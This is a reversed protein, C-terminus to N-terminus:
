VRPILSLRWLRRMDRVGGLSVEEYTPDPTKGGMFGVRTGIVGAMDRLCYEVGWFCGAAFYAKQEDDTEKAKFNLAISNVCHRVDKPTMSEGYFVHGLHAGCNACRIETRTGDSDPIRRIAGLIEDDFSPWGCGPDFKDESRFLPAACRKCTYTGKEDFDVYKGSFPRETGKQVIVYEEEPTLRKYGKEM